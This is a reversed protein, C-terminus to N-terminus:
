EEASVVLPAGNMRAMVIADAARQEAIEYPYIGAIASGTNHIELTVETAAEESMNFIDKLIAIVLDMPTKDDNFFVVKWLNPPQLICAVNDKIEYEVDTSM